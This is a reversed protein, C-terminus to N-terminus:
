SENWEEGSAEWELMRGFLGKVAEFESHAALLSSLSEYAGQYGIISWPTSSGPSYRLDAWRGVGKKDFITARLERGTEPYTVETRLGPYVYPELEKVVGAWASLLVHRRNAEDIAKIAKQYFEAMAAAANAAEVAESRAFELAEGRTCKEGQQVLSVLQGDLSITWQDEDKEIKLGM